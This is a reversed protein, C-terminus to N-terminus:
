SGLGFRALRFLRDGNDFINERVGRACLHATLLLLKGVSRDQPQSNGYGLVM